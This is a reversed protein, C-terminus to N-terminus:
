WGARGASATILVALLLAPIVWVFAQARNIAALYAVVTLSILILLKRQGLSRLIDM